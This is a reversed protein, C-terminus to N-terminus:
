ESTVVNAANISHDLLIKSLAKIWTPHDNLCPILTLSEGGADLFTQRGREGIEELTELNDSVFSPCAVVLRKIGTNGFHKLSDETSPTLWPVPGLKSQFSTTYQKDSLKLSRALLSSTKLSQYRYCLHSAASEKSCCDEQSLCYHGTPDTKKIQSEPLSHYSFLLHEFDKPLNERIVTESAKLFGESAYFPPLNILRTGQNCTREAEKLSTTVTADSFQPYLPLVLIKNIKQEKLSKVAQDIGPNGYRMAIEIPLNIEQKLQEQLKKTYVLLPSGEDMWIKKYAASTSKPRLPLIICSVIFKRLIWPLNIVYPDM